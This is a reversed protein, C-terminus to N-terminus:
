KPLKGGFQSKVYEESVTRKSTITGLEDNDAKSKIISEIAAEFYSHKVLSENLRAARLSANLVANSINSGTIGNYKEALKRINVDTPMSSPIYMRWLKYRNEEDPLEFKVHALIRRLFAPDYNSIFNTAFLILDDYENILVLLVSRTQNVSVDTSNSMNTVRRSLLADAEDFFIAANTEKAYNFMAVLNKSTEGVYKSEIQSYDVTLIKRNLQKAIAHAAMSKGTGSYGYLNIGARNQNKQREGLGWQNFLLDRKDYLVLVDQIADYVSKNLIIDNFSYQPEEAQFLTFGTSVATDKSVSKEKYSIQNGNKGNKPFEATTVETVRKGLPM